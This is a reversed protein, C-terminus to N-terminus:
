VLDSTPLTLHTYSVPDHSKKPTQHASKVPVSDELRYIETQENDTESIPLLPCSIEYAAVFSSSATNEEDAAPQKRKLRTIIRERDM